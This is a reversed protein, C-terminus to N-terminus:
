SRVQTLQDMLSYAESTSVALSKLHRQTDDGLQDLLANFAAKQDSNLTQFFEAAMDAFTRSQPTM